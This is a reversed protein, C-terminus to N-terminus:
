NHQVCTETMNTWDQQHAEYAEARLVRNTFAYFVHNDLGFFSHKPHTMFGVADMHLLSHQDLLACGRDLEQGSMRASFKCWIQALGWTSQKHICRDCNQLVNLLARPRLLPAMVEVFDTYRFRCRTHPAQFDCMLENEYCGSRVSLLSLSTNNTEEQLSLNYTGGSVIRSFSRVTPGVIGAGTDTADLLMNHVNIDRVDLDEDMVWVWDYDKVQDYTSVLRQLMRFKLGRILSSNQVNRAYWDSDHETWAANTGDYHMFFVDMQDNLSARLADINRVVIALNPGQSGVAVIVLLKKHFSPSLSLPPAPVDVTNLRLSSVSVHAFVCLVALLFTM